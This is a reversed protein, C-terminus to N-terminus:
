PANRRLTRVLQAQGAPELQAGPTAPSAVIVPHQGPPRACVSLGSILLKLILFKGEQVVNAISGTHEGSRWLRRKPTPYSLGLDSVEDGVDGVIM